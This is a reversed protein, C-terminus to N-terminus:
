VCFLKSLRSLKLFLKILADTMYLRVKCHGIACYNIQYAIFSVGFSYTLRWQLPGVVASTGFNLIPTRWKRAKQYANNTLKRHLKPTVVTVVISGSPGYGATM